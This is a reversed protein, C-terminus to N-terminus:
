NSVNSEKSDTLTIGSHQPLNPIIKGDLWMRSQRGNVKGKRDKGECEEWAGTIVKNM